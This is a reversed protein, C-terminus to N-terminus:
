EKAKEVAQNIKEPDSSTVKETGDANAAQVETKENDREERKEAVSQHEQLTLSVDYCRLGESERAQIDDVFIVQRIKAASCLPDSVAYVQPSGNSDDAGAMDLLKTLGDSKDMPIQLAVSVKKPKNGASSFASSSSQGSLDKREFSATISIKVNKGISELTLETGSGSLIM